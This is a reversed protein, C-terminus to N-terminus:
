HPADPPNSRRECAIAELLRPRSFEARPGLRYVNSSVSALDHDWIRTSMGPRPRVPPPGPDPRGEPEAPATPVRRLMQGKRADRPPPRRPTV